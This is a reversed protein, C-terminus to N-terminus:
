TFLRKLIIKNLFGTRTGFKYNNKVCAVLSSRSYILLNNGVVKDSILLCSDTKQPCIKSSTKFYLNHCLSCYKDILM